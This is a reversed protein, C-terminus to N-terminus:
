KLSRLKGATPRRDPRSSRSSPSSAPIFDDANDRYDNARLSTGVSHSSLSWPASQPSRTAYHGFSLATGPHRSDLRGARRPAPRRLYARCAGESRRRPFPGDLRKLGSERVGQWSSQVVPFHLGNLRSFSCRLAMFSPAPWAPGGVASRQSPPVGATALSGAGSASISGVTRPACRSPGTNETRRLLAEEIPMQRRAAM